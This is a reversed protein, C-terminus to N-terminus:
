EQRVVHRHRAIILGHVDRVITIELGDDVLQRCAMSVGQGALVDGVGHRRRARSQGLVRVVRLEELDQDGPRCALIKRIM